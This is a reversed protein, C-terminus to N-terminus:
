SQKGAFGNGGYKVRRVYGPTTLLAWRDQVAGVVYEPGLDKWEQDTMESLVERVARTTAGHDGGGDGSGWQDNQGNLAQTTSRDTFRTGSPMEGRSGQRDVELQLGTSRGTYPGTRLMTGSMADPDRGLAKVVWQVIQVDVEFALMMLIPPLAATLRRGPDAGAHQLNFWVTLAGTLVMVVFPWTRNGRLIKALIAALQAVIFAADLLLPWLMTLRESYLGTDRAWAYLAGYSTLFAVGAVGLTLIGIAVIVAQGFANLDRFRLPTIVDTHHM